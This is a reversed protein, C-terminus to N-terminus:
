LGLAAMMSDRQRSGASPRPLALAALELNSRRRRLVIEAFGANKLYQLFLTPTFGSHHAM